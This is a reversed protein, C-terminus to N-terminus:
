RDLEFIEDFHELGARTHAIVLVGGRAGLREHLARAAPPDLHAAPEDFIVLPATTLLGRAVAVRRRQGGSLREGEEGVHTDLDIDLGVADLAERLEDDTADRNALRLNERVTTAFLHADQAILVVHRRLDDQALQRVDVGGYTVVGRDPDRLRVLLHALTTKGCGSPGLLAVSRGPALEIDVGGLVGRWDVGRAALVPGAAPLPASPDTVPVPADTLAELRRAAEACAGLHQAAGALPPVVEFAAITLLALAGLAVPSTNGISVALVAVVALGALATAVGNALGGALADRGTLRALRADAARVRRLREQDQGLLALEAAGGLAEVLESTLEARAPAQRRAATRATLGAAAPVALAALVLAGVLVFGAAPLILRAITGTVGIVLAAVVPPVLARLYLHQLQDVDAVFRSLVDGTRLGPLGAPVLPALRAYFRERLDALVRFALDHTTLREGYRLGARAIGFARVGVIAMTLQLIPPQESARVILYGSTTLLGVSALVAAAGFAVAVALRGRRPAVLAAARSLASM